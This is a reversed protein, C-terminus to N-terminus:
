APYFDGQVAYVWQSDNGLRLAQKGNIYRVAYVKYDGDAKIAGSVTGDPERLTVGASTTFVGDLDKQVQIDAAKVWQDKSLRYATINGDADKAVEFASWEDVSTSLKTDTDKTTAADSYITAAKNDSYVATGTPLKETDVQEEPVVEKFNAAKVYTWTKGAKRAYGVISGNLSDKIVQTYEFNQGKGVKLTDIKHNFDIDGYVNADATATVTGKVNEAYNYQTTANVDGAKVWLDSAKGSADGKVIHYAVVNFKGDNGYSGAVQDYTLTTKYDTVYTGTADAKGDTTVKGTGHTTLAYRYLPTLDRKTTVTGNVANVDLIQTPTTPTESLLLNAANTRIFYVTGNYTFGYVQSGDDIIYTALPGTIEGNHIATQIKTTTDSTWSRPVATYIGNPNVVFLNGDVTVKTGTDKLGYNSLDNIKIYSNKLIAGTAKVAEAQLWSNAVDGNATDRSVHYGTIKGAADVAIQDYKLSTGNKAVYKGTPTDFASDTYAPVNDYVTSMIGPGTESQRVYYKQGNVGTVTYYDLGLVKESSARANTVPILNSANTAELQKTENNWTLVNPYNEAADTWTLFIASDPLATTTAAQVIGREASTATFVPAVTPAIVLLAAATIGLYKVKGTKFM